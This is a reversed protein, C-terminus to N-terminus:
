TGPKEASDGAGTTGTQEHEENPKSGELTGAANDTKTDPHDTAAAQEREMKKATNIILAQEQVREVQAKTKKIAKAKNKGIEIISKAFQGSLIVKVYGSDLGGADYVELQLEDNNFDKLHAEEIEYIASEIPDYITEKRKRNGIESPLGLRHQITRYNINFEIKGDDSTHKEDAVQRGRYFLYWLLNAGRPSLRYYYNPLIAFYQMIFQWNLHPNLQMYCVRNEITGGTFLVQLTDQRLTKKKTVKSQGQIKVSTLYDRAQEFGDRIASDYRYMGKSLIDDFPVAIVDTTLTGNHVAHENAYQIFLVFFKSLSDGQKAIADGVPLQLTIDTAKSKIGAKYVDIEKEESKGTQADVITQTAKDKAMTWKISKSTEGMRAPLELEHGRFGIATVIANLPASSPMSNIINTIPDKEQEHTETPEGKRKSLTRPKAYFSSTKYEVIRKAEDTSIGARRLAEIQMEICHCMFDYCTKWGRVPMCRKIDKLLEDKDPPTPPTSVYDALRKLTDRQWELREIYDKKEIAGIIERIDSMIAAEDNSYTDIRDYYFQEKLKQEQEILANFEDDLANIEQETLTGEARKKILEDRMKWIRKSLEDLAAQQEDTRPKKKIIM